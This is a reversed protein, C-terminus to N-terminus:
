ISWLLLIACYKDNETQSIERLTINWTEDMNYCTYSSWYNKHSFLVGNHPYVINQTDM